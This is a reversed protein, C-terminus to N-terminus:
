VEGGDVEEGEDIEEDEDLMITERGNEEKVFYDNTGFYKRRERAIWRKAEEETDFRKVTSNSVGLNAKKAEEWTAYVGSWFSLQGNIVVAYFKAPEEM